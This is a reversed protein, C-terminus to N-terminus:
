ESLVPKSVIHGGDQRIVNDLMEPNTEFMRKLIKSPM